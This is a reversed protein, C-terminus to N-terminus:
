EGDGGASTRCVKGHKHGEGVHGPRCRGGDNQDDAGEGGGEGEGEEEACTQLATTIGPEERRTVLSPSACIATHDVSIVPGLGAAQPVEVAAVRSSLHVV